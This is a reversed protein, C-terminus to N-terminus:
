RLENISKSLNKPKEAQNLKQHFLEDSLCKLLRLTEYFQPAYFYLIAHPQFEHFLSTKRETTGKQYQEFICCLHTNSTLDV